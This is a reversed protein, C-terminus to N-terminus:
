DFIIMYNENFIFYIFILVVLVYVCCYFIFSILSLSKFYDLFFIVIFYFWLHSFLILCYHTISFFTSTTMFFTSVLICRFLVRSCLLLDMPCYNLPYLAINQSFLIFHILYYCLFFSTM